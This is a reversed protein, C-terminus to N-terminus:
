PRRPPRCSPRARTPPTADTPTRWTSRVRTRAPGCPSSAPHLPPRRQRGREPSARLHARMATGTTCPRGDACRCSEDALGQANLAVVIMPWRTHCHCAGSSHRRNVIPSRRSIARGDQDTALRRAPRQHPDLERLHGLELAATHDMEMGQDPEVTLRCGILRERRRGDLQGGLQEGIQHDPRGGLHGAFRCRDVAISTARRSRNPAWSSARGTWSWASRSSVVPAPNCGSVTAAYTAFYAVLAAASRAAPSLPALGCRHRSLDTTPQNPTAPWGPRASRDPRHRCPNPGTPRCARSGRGNRTSTAGTSSWGRGAGGPGVHGCGGGGGRAVVARRNPRRRGPAVVLQSGVSTTPDHRNAPM